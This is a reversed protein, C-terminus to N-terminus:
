LHLKHNKLLIDCGLYKISFDYIENTRNISLKPYDIYHIKIRSCRSAVTSQKRVGAVALLISSKRPKNRWNHWLSKRNVVSMSMLM